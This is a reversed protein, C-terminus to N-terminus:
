DATLAQVMEDNQTLGMKAPQQSGLDGVVVSHTRMLREIVGTGPWAFHLRWRAPTDHDEWLNVPEVM